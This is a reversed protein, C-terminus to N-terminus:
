LKENKDKHKSKFKLIVIGIITFLGFIPIIYDMFTRKPEGIYLLDKNNIWIEPNNEIHTEKYSTGAYRDSAVQTSKRIMYSLECHSGDLESIKYVRGIMGKYFGSIVEVRDYYELLKNSDVM